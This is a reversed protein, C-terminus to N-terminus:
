KINAPKDIGYTKAITMNAAPMKARDLVIKPGSLEFEIVDYKAEPKIALAKAIDKMSGIKMGNINDVVLQNLGHYGLNM